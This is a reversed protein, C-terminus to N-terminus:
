FFYPPLAPLGATEPKAPVKKVWLPNPGVMLGARPGFGLLASLDVEKAM